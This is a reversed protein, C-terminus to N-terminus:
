SVAIVSFGELVAWNRKRGEDTREDNASIWDLQDGRQWALELQLNSGTASRAEELLTRVHPMGLLAEECAQLINKRTMIKCTSSSGVFDDSPIPLKIISELDPVNVQLQDPLEGGLERWIEWTWDRTTKKNRGIFVFVQTWSGDQKLMKYQKSQKIRDAFEKAHKSGHAGALEEGWPSPDVTLSFSQDAMSFMSFSTYRKNLPITYCLRKSKYYYDKLPNHQTASLDHRDATLKGSSAAVAVDVM